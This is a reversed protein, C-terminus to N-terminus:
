KRFEHHESIKIKLKQLEDSITLYAKWKCNILGIKIEEQM